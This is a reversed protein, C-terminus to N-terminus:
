RAATVDLTGTESRGFREPRYMDEISAGPRVYHGPSVARVIYAVQFSAPQGTVRDFAASSVPRRSIRHELTRGRTEAMCCRAPDNGEVLSPNDIEIGAPLPDVLLLRGTRAAKESVKLSVIFRTNQKVSSVDIPQGTMGYYFREVKFGQDTAPEPTSPVGAVSVVARLANQGSNLITIPADDLRAQGITRYLAGTSPKGDITLTIGDSDKALAQAAIVMWGQEQTSTYRAAERAREVVLSARQIDARAGNTEALLAVTAVSDRLKSGYDARWVEETRQRDLLDLASHFATAARGKDGLLALAAGLQARALPTTFEELKTDVLYRLDGMVPRGNRALVYASYALGSATEPKVDSANVLSNRLQDLALDFGKQPVAFNQERARTLFDGVFANLWLDEGGVSWLGFSGNSSQRNLVRDLANRIREDAKEDLNFREQAELRNVYLLPMARSVTQETCGYPYRDLQKLLAPVDLATLPSISVSVSGSGPLTDALLDGSLNLTGGGPLPRM